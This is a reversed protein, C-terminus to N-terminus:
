TPKPRQYDLPDGLVVLHEVADALRALDYINGHIDSVVSVKM